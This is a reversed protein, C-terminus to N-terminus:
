RGGVPQIRGGWPGPRINVGITRTLEAIYETKNNNDQM